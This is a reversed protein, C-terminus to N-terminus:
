PKMQWTITYPWPNDLYPYPYITPSDSVEVWGKGGCGHCTKMENGETTIKGTTIKGKGHCIPCIEAHAM